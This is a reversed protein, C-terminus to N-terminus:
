KDLHVAIVQDGHQREHAILRARIKDWRTRNKPSLPSVKDEVHEEDFEATAAALEETTMEWCPKKAKKATM